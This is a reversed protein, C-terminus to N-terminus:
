NHKRIFCPRKNRGAKFGRGNYADRRKSRSSSETRRDKSLLKSIVTPVDNPDPLKEKPVTQSAPAKSIDKTISTTKTTKTVNTKISKEGKKSEKKM